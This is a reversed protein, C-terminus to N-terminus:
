SLYDAIRIEDNIGSQEPDWIIMTRGRNITFKIRDEPRANQLTPIWWLPIALLRGDKLAVHLYSGDFRVQDILAEKPFAYASIPHSVRFRKVTSESM